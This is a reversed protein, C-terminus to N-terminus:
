HEKFTNARSVWKELESRTPSGRTETKTAKLAGAWNAWQLAEEDSRKM